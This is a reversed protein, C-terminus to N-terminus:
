DDDQAEAALEELCERILQDAIAIEELTLHPIRQRMRTPVALLKTKAITVSQAWAKHVQDAPLLLKEKQRRELELLNAKEYESRARSENYDPIPEDGSRPVSEPAQDIVVARRQREEVSRLEPQPRPPRGPKPSDVRQRTVKKWQDELGELALYPTGKPGPFTQLEGSHIKRYISQKSKLGLLMAAESISVLKSKM